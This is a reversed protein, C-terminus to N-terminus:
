KVKNKAAIATELGKRAEIDNPDLSLVKRYHDAAKEFQGDGLLAAALNFQADVSNPELEVVKAFNELAEGPRNQRALAVALNGYAKAYRPNIQIAQQYEAIAKEPNNMTMYLNALNYYSEANKPDLRIAKRYCELATDYNGKASVALAFNNYTMADAGLKVATELETIAEDIKGMQLFALGLNSYLQSKEPNYSLGERCIAIADDFKGQQIKAAALSIYTHADGPKLKLVKDYWLAAENSKGQKALTEAINFNAEPDKPNIKVAQQFNALAEDFRNNEALAVGLNSFAGDNNTTVNVTHQFITVSDHWYSTQKYTLLILLILLAGSSTVLITRRHQWQVTIDRVFWAIMIFLGTLPIYTYRDAMAQGGVQVLGIVPILTGLYWLWGFLLYKRTRALSIAIASIALLIVASLVVQRLPINNRLHPYYIALNFPYLMKAIYATYSVVANTFRTTFSFVRLPSVAGGTKQAFFTVGCSVASLAFLPIKERVLEAVSKGGDVPALQLRELPWYDFLLLVFPLTVLMPKAMLGLAFAAIITFYRKTTPQEVFRIYALMTLFWFLTSLVDKREAIWAVSEVHLPHLAFLAAVFASPWIANTSRYLVILLLITNAIHLLLNVLHFAAPELGFLQRDLMLSLWTLPHWNSAHISTFAWRIGDLSLGLMVYPNSTVYQPDDFNIFDAKLIPLCAIATTIALGLCIISLMRNNQPPTM